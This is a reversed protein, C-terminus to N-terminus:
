RDARRRLAHRYSADRSRRALLLPLAAERRDAWYEALGALATVSESSSKRLKTYRLLWHQTLVLGCLWPVVDDSGSAAVVRVARSRVEAGTYAGASMREMVANGIVPSSEIAAIVLAQSVIREEPDRVARLLAEEKRAPLKMMLRLAAWRLDTDEQRALTHLDQDLPWVDCRDLVGLLVRQVFPPRQRLSRTIVDCGAHGTQVLLDALWTSDREERQEVAGILAEAAGGQLRDVVLGLLRVDPRESALEQRLIPGNVIRDILQERAAGVPFTMLRDLVSTKGDRAMWEAFASEAGPGIDDCSCAIGVIRDPESADRQLDSGQSREKHGIDRLLEAYRGPNPDDLTWGDVMRHVQERLVLDAAAATPTERGSHRALKGFLRLMADSITRSSVTAGARVVDIVANATLHDTAERMFRARLGPDEAMDLLRALTAPDVSSLLGSLRSRLHEARGGGIRDLTSTANLLATSVLREYDRHGRRADIAAAITRVDNVDAGPPLTELDGLAARALGVWTQQAEACDADALLELHEFSVPVLDIHPWPALAEKGRTGLPTGEREFPSAVAALFGDIEGRGVGEHLHIAAIQHGHLRECLECVLVHEDDTTAGDVILRDRAVGLSLTGRGAVAQQVQRHVADVAGHLLPHTPPYIARKQVTVALERVLRALPGDPHLGGSPTTRPASTNAASV